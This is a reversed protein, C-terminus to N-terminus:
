RSDSAEIGAGDPLATHQAPASSRLGKTAEDSAHVDDVGLVDLALVVEGHEALELVEDGLGDLDRDREVVRDRAEAGEGVLGADM